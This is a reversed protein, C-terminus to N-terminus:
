FRSHGQSNDQPRGCRKQTKQLRRSVDQLMGSREQPTKLGGPASKSGDRPGLPEPAAIGLGWTAGAETKEIIKSALLCPTGGLASLCM